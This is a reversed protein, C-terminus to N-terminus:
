SSLEGKGVLAVVAYTLVQSSGTYLVDVPREPLMVGRCDAEDIEARDQIPTAPLGCKLKVHAKGDRKRFVVDEVPIADPNRRAM